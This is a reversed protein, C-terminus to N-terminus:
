DEQEKERKDAPRTSGMKEDYVKGGRERGGEGGLSWMNGERTSREGPSMAVRTVGQVVVKNSWQLKVLTSAVRDRESKAETSVARRLELLSHRPLQSMPKDSFDQLMALMVDIPEHSKRLMWLICVTARAVVALGSHLCQSSLPLIGRETMEM